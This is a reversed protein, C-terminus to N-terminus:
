ALARGKPALHDVIVKHSYVMTHLCSFAFAILGECCVEAARGPNWLWIAARALCSLNILSGVTGTRLGQRSPPHEADTMFIHVQM